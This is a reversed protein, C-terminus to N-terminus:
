PTVSEGWLPSTIYAVYKSSFVDTQSHFSARLAVLAGPQTILEARVARLTSLRRKHGRWEVIGVNVKLSIEGMAQLNVGCASQNESHMWTTVLLLHAGSVRVRKCQCM